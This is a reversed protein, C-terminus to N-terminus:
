ACSGARTMGSVSRLETTRFGYGCTPSYPNRARPCFARAGSHRRARPCFGAGRFSLM